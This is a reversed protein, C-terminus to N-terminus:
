NCYAKNRLFIPSCLRAASRRTYYQRLQKKLLQKCQAFVKLILEMTYCHLTDMWVIWNVKQLCWCTKLAILAIFGSCGSVVVSGYNDCSLHMLM